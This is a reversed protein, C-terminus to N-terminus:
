LVGEHNDDRSIRRPKTDKNGSFKTLDLDCMCQLCHQLLDCSLSLLFWSTLPFWLWLFFVFSIYLTAVIYLSPGINWCRDSIDVQLKTNLYQFKKPVKHSFKWKKNKHVLDLNKSKKGPHTFSTFLHFFFVAFFIFCFSVPQTLLLFM